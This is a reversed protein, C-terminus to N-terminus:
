LAHSARIDSIVGGTKLPSSSLQSLLPALLVSFQDKEASQLTPLTDWTGTVSKTLYERQSDNCQRFYADQIGPLLGLYELLEITFPLVTHEKQQSCAEYFRLTAAFIDPLAEEEQLLRLLLETGQQMQLFTDIESENWESLKSADTIQWGASSERVQLNVHQMPLLCGSLRSKLKRVSRARATLKGYEKTLLICFRDAEGVNHTQLVICEVTHLKSMAVSCLIDSTLPNTKANWAM